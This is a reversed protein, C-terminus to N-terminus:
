TVKRGVFEDLVQWIVELENRFSWQDSTRRILEAGRETPLKGKPLDKTVQERVYAATTPEAPVPPAPEPPLFGILSPCYMTVTRRLEEYSTAKEAAQKMQEVKVRPRERCTPATCFPRGQSGDGGCTGCTIPQAIWAPGPRTPSKPHMGTHTFDAPDASTARGAAVEPECGMFLWNDVVFCFYARMDRPSGNVYLQESEATVSGGQLVLFSRTEGDIAASPLGISGDKGVVGSRVFGPMGPLWGFAYRALQSAYELLETAVRGCDGADNRERWDKMREEHTM